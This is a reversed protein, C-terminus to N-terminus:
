AKRSYSGLLPYGEGTNPTVHAATKKDLAFITNQYNWVAFWANDILYKGIDQFVAKADAGTAKQAKDCLAALEPTTQHKVNWLADPTVSQVVDALASVMGLTMPFMPYVGGLLAGFAQSIKLKKETVTINLKKLQSIVIANFPTFGEVLPIDCTFGDAFGAEAMLAKAKDIDYPYVDKLDSRYAESEPPFIQNSVVGEGQLTATVMAARDFAMNIAQRVKVNGLAPIVKGLRDAIIIGNWSTLTRLLTLGAGEAAKATPGNLAAANVQGTQLANLRATVDTMVKFVIKDYPYQSQDYYKPNKVVTYTSGSTSNAADYTYPGAGIPTTDVNAAKLQAPAAITGVNGCLFLPVLGNPDKSAIEVTTADKATM